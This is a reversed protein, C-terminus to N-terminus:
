LAHKRIWVEAYKYYNKYKSELEIKKKPSSFILQNVELFDTDNLDNKKIKKDLYHKWDLQMLQKVKQDRFATFATRRLIKDIAFVNESTPVKNDIKYLLLLAEGRYKNKEKYRWIAIFLIALLLVIICLVVTWGIADFTFAIPAPPIVTGINNETNIM